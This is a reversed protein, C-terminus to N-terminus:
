KAPDELVALTAAIYDRSQVEIDTLYPSVVFKALDAVTEDPLYASIERHRNLFIQAKEGQSFNPNSIDAALDRLLERVTDNRQRAKDPQSVPVPFVYVGLALLILFLGVGILLVANDNGFTLAIQGLRFPIKVEILSQSVQGYGLCSIGSVLITRVVFKRHDPNFLRDLKRLFISKLTPQNM